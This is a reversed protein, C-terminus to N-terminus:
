ELGNIVSLKKEKGVFNKEPYAEEVDDLYLLTRGRFVM